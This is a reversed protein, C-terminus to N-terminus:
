GKDICKVQYTGYTGKPAFGMITFGDGPVISNIDFSVGELIADIPDHDTTTLGFPACVIASETSVWTQGTIEVEVYSGEKHLVAFSSIPYTAGSANGFTWGNTGTISGDGSIGSFALRTYINRDSLWTLNMSAVEEASYSTLGETFPPKVGVLGRRHRINGETIGDISGSLSTSSDYITTVISRVGSNLSVTLGAIHNFRYDDNSTTMRSVVFQLCNIDKTFNIFATVSKARISVNGTASITFDSANYSAVGTLSYSALAVPSSGGSGGSGNAGTAGRAVLM